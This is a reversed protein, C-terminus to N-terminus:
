WKWVRFYIRILVASGALGKCLMRSGRTVVHTYIGISSNYVYICLTYPMHIYTYFTCVRKCGHVYMCAYRWAFMRVYMYCNVCDVIIYASITMTEISKHTPYDAHLYNVFRCFCTKFKSIEQIDSGFPFINIMGTLFTIAKM